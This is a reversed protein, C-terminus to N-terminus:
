EPSLLVKLNGSDGASHLAAVGDELSFRDTVLPTPDVAGSALLGLAKDFPGCRSGIVSIEDIVWANTDPSAPTSLTTKLVLTGRPRVMGTAVALGGPAGTCEVVVDARPLDALDAAPVPTIPRPLLDLKARSRAVGYVQAGTDALVRACLQGLRGVGLVIVRDGPGVQVQETIRCAAALPETFVAAEDSVEDPVAHLNELPLRFAEAFVGDRDQIGLVSRHPCHTPRGALCTPCSRCPCNIEGVVRKGIWRADSADEVIGVCEHGLVGSFGMYGKILELDTACVGGLVLRILAEGDSVPRTHASTVRPGGPELVLARL